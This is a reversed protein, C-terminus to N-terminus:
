SRMSMTDVYVYLQTIYSTVYVTDHPTHQLKCGIFYKHEQQTFILIQLYRHRM